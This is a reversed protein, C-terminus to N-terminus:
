ILFLCLNKIGIRDALYGGPFSYLAGLLNNIGSMLGIAYAGGGVAIKDISLYHFAFFDHSFSKQRAM